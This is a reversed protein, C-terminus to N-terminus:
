PLPRVREMPARLRPTGGMLGVLSRCIPLGLGTGQINRNRHIDTQSFPNFIADLDERKIGIGTDTVRFIISSETLALDLEVSGKSTFKVANGLLNLLIQRLRIDDGFLCVSLSDSAAFRFELGKDKAIGRM